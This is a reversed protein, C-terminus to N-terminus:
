NGFNAVVPGFVVIFFAPIIFVVTLLFIKVPLKAAKEEALQKRKIRMEASQIRLTEALPVGHKQAQILALVLQRIEPIETRQALSRLAEDRPVGARADQVTRRLEEALPGENTTAIRMLAADFGLGAEVCVTLQDIMDAAAHRMADQRKDRQGAVWLDPLLFGPLGFLLGLLPMGLLFGFSGMVLAMLVKIGILRPLDIGHPHGAQVLKAELGDLLPKPLRRRSWQGVGSLAGSLASTSTEPQPLGAFLNLRAQSPKASLGWWFAGVASVVALAALIVVINM